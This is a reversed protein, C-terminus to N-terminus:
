PSQFFSSNDFFQFIRFLCCRSHVHLFPIIFDSHTRIKGSTEVFIMSRAVQWPTCKQSTLCPIKQILDRQRMRSDNTHRYFHKGANRELEIIAWTLKSKENKRARFYLADTMIVNGGRLSIDVDKLIDPRTGYNSVNYNNFPTLLIAFCIILM